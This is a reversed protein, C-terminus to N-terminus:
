RQSLSRGSSYRRRIDSLLPRVAFSIEDHCLDLFIQGVLVQFREILTTNTREKRLAQCVGYTGDAVRGGPPATAFSLRMSITVAWSADASYSDAATRLLVLSQLAQDSYPIMTPTDILNTRSIEALYTCPV